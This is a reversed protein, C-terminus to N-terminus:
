KQAVFVKSIIAGSAMDLSSPDTSWLTGNQLTMPQSGTFKTIQRKSKLSQITIAASNSSSSLDRSDNGTPLQPADIVAIVEGDATMALPMGVM